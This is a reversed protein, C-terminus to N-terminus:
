YPTRGLTSRATRQPGAARLHRDSDRLGVSLEFANTEASSVAMGASGAIWQAASRLSRDPVCYPPRPAAERGTFERV